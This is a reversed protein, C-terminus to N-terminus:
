RTRHALIAQRLRLADAYKPDLRLAEEVHTLASDFDRKNAYAAALGYHINSRLGAADKAGKLDLAVKLEAIAEDYKGGNIELLGLDLRPNPYEPNIAISKRYHSAGGNADGQRM